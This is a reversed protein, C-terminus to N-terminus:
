IGCIRLKQSETNGSSNSSNRTYHIYGSHKGAIKGDINKNASNIITLDKIGYPISDTTAEFPVPTQPEYDLLKVKQLRMQTCDSGRLVEPWM